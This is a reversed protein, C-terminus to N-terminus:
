CVDNFSKDTYLSNTERKLMKKKSYTYAHLTRKTGFPAADEKRRLLITMIMMGSSIVCLYMEHM